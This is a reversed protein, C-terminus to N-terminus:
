SEFSRAEEKSVFIMATSNTCYRLGSPPPGDHHLHGLKGHCTACVLFTDGHGPRQDPMTTVAPGPLPASFTPAGTHAEYKDGSSFLALHCRVCHYTGDEFLGCYPNTFDPDDQGEVTVQYQQPSLLKRWEGDTKQWQSNRTM